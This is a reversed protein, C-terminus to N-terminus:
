ILLYKDININIYIYINIVHFRSESVSNRVHFGSQVDANPLVGGVKKKISFVLGSILNEQLQFKVKYPM